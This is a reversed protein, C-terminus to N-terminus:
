ANWFKKLHDLLDTKGAVSRSGTKGHNKFAEILYSIKSVSLGKILYEISFKQSENINEFDLIRMINSIMSSIERQIKIQTPTLKGQNNKGWVAQVIYTIPESVLKEKNSIFIIETTRDIMEKIKLIDVDCVEADCLLTIYGSDENSPLIVEKDLLKAKENM